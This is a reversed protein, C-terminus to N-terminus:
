LFAGNEKEKILGMNDNASTLEISARRQPSPSDRRRGIDERSAPSALQPNQQSSKARSTQSRSAPQLEISKSDSDSAIHIVASSVSPRRTTRNPPTPYPVRPNSSPSSQAQRRRPQPAKDWFGGKAFTNALEAVDDRSAHKRNKVPSM